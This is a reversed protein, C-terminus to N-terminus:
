IPRTANALGPEAFPAAGMASHAGDYAARNECAGVIGRLLALRSVPRRLTVDCIAMREASLDDRKVDSLALGIVLDPVIRRLRLCFDVAADADGFDHAVICCTLRPAYLRLWVEPLDYQPVIMVTGGVNEIDAKMRRAEPTNDAFIAVLADSLAFRNELDFAGTIKDAAEPGTSFMRRTMREFLTPHSPELYALSDLSHGNTAFGQKMENSAEWLRCVLSVDAFKRHELKISNISGDDDAEPWNGQHIPCVALTPNRFIAQAARDDPWNQLCAGRSISQGTTCPAL